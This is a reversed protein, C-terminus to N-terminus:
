VLVELANLVDAAGLCPRVRPDRLLANTGESLTSTIQGPVALVPRGLDFAAQVAHTSGSESRAEVVVLVDALAAILQNRAMLRWPAVPIGPEYEGVVAGVSSVIAAALDKHSTPYDRDIGCGLVGITCGNAELAGRHAHGDIGRALGSVITVGGAALDRALTRAVHAGYDSCSRAGVIAVTQGALIGSLSGNSRAWLAEPPKRLERLRGPYEPSDAHIMYRM